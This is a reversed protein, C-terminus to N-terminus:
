SESILELDEDLEFTATGWISNIAQKKLGKIYGLLTSLKKQEDILVDTESLNDLLKIACEEIYEITEISLKAGDHDIILNDFNQLDILYFEEEDFEEDFDDLTIALDLKAISDQSLDLTVTGGATSWNEFIEKFYSNLKWISLAQYEEKDNDCLLEIRDQSDNLSLYMAKLSKNKWEHGDCHAKIEKYLYRLRKLTKRKLATVNKPEQASGLQEEELGELEEYEDVGSLEGEEIGSLENEYEAIWRYITAQSVEPYFQQVIEARDIDEDYMALVEKKISNKM